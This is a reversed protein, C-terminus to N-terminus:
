EDNGSGPEVSRFINASSGSGAAKHCSYYFDGARGIKVTTNNTRIALFPNSALGTAPRDTLM